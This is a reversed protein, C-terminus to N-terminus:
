FPIFETFPITTTENTISKSYILGNYYETNLDSLSASITFTVLYNGSGTFPASGNPGVLSMNATGNNIVVPLGMAAVDGNLTGLGTFGIRGNHVSPIGTIVIIKQPAPEQKCATFVIACFIATIALWRIVSNKKM